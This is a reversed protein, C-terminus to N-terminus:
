FSFGFAFYPSVTDAGVRERGVVPVALGFRLTQPADWELIAAGLAVEIGASAIPRGIRPAPACTSAYLPASACEAIGYDGFMTLSTRDVFFPLLGLGRSARVLPARYEFTATAARTGYTSAAPFGRVGFTRRGEGVTYGPFLDVVTGSTGGVELSTGARRDTLGGAVRLALVHHAFGPFDLSKFGAATGVASTSRTGRALDTRWRERVTVAFSVGDEPSISLAPRQLNSWAAGIFLRPFTYPRQYVTDLQPLFEGPDTLFDRHEVGVGLSVSANTRVRPRVFTAALSADRTRKLLSGVIQTTGGSLLDRELEYNQSATLDLLPRRLGAYRYSLGATPYSGTTPITLFASYAHRGVVDSGTTQAGLRTGRAPAPEIIPYWYRPLLSSWPSYRVYDGAVERPVRLSGPQIVTSREVRAPLTAVPAIGLHYGDARLTVAAIWRGDPSIEPTFLGTPSPEVVRAESEGSALPVSQVVISPAGSRESVYVVSTGDPTWSPSTLLYEGQALIARGHQELDWAEIAYTGGSSRHAVAIRKGDPSWRPEAFVEDPGGVSVPFITHTLADLRVVSSRGAALQVAVFEGDERADPQILRKGHTLRVVDGAREVYLDSRIEQPSTFDLQAYLFGGNSLPVNAERTDRRGLRTRAGSTTVLYAANTERGDTGSYVLTTDNVWRPSTAFYGHTTLERWGPLPPRREGVSRRVSDSWQRYAATFSVGFARKAAPDLWYPILQASQVDVFRRITSDGRTRALYDVFLSGYGYAGEGGPFRSTGLSLEDLRFLRGELAGARTLLTHEADKLRGGETLRSEEYVAIGETLWSPGYSNPFLMPARGFLQQGVRWIVRTRDLHFIHALEHTIVLALWDENFRLGPDEIPPTAFIVIRNTPSVIAYGNSYDADDSVVLDIRTRPRHLEGALQAYAREAAAAAARGERELGRPVHVRFHETELTRWHHYPAPQASARGAFAGAVLLGALLRRLVRIV